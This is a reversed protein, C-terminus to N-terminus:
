RSDILTDNKYIQKLTVNGNRDYFVWISDKRGNKWHKVSRIQDGHNYKEESYIRYNKGEKYERYNGEIYEPENIRNFAVFGAILFIFINIFWYKLFWKWFFITTLIAIIFYGCYAIVFLNLFPTWPDSHSQCSKPITICFGIGSLISWIRYLKFPINIPLPV